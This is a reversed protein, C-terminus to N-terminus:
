IIKREKKIHAKQIVSIDEEGAEEKIVDMKSGEKQNSKEHGLESDEVDKSKSDATEDDNAPTTPREYIIFVVKRVIICMWSISMGVVMFTINVLGLVNRAGDSLDFMLPFMLVSSIFVIGEASIASIASYNTM